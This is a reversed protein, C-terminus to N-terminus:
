CGTAGGGRASVTGTGGGEAGTGAAVAFFWASWSFTVLVLFRLRVSDVSLIASTM